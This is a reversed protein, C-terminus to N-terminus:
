GRAVARVILNTYIVQGHPDPHTNDSYLLGPAASAKYWNVVTFHPTQAMKQITANSKSQWSEPVRVNVLVVLPVGRTLSVLQQMQSPEFPGNTGLGIVLARLGKLDGEARYEALRALGVSVQRGVAADVTIAPGFSVELDDSAGLMVSDGIALVPGGPPAELLSTGPVRELKPPKRVRGTTPRAHHVGAPPQRAAGEAITASARSLQGVIGAAASTEGGAISPPAKPAPAVVVLAVVVLVVAAMGAV